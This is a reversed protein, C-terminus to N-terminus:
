FIHHSLQDIETKFTPAFLNNSYFFIPAVPASLLFLNLMVKSLPKKFSAM